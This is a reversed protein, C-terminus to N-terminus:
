TFYLRLPTEGGIQRRLRANPVWHRLAAITDAYTVKSEYAAFPWDSGWVLREGGAVRVLESAYM